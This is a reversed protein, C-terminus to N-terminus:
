TIDIQPQQEKLSALLEQACLSILQSEGERLVLKHYKFLFPDM